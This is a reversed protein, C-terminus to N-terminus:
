GSIQPHYESLVNVEPSFTLPTTSLLVVPRDILLLSWCAPYFLGPLITFVAVKLLSKVYKKAHLLVDFFFTTINCFKFLRIVATFYM